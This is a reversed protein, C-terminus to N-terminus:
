EGVNPYGIIGVTINKKMNLSRSYNKLLQLLNSAGIALSRNMSSTHDLKINNVQSLKSSHQTSSKFAIVPFERSLYKIWINMNELPILDIKNLILILRKPSKQDSQVKSLILQEMERCRCGLPDRADLVQLIIDSQEIVNNLEKYYYRKSALSLDVSAQVESPDVNPSNNPHNHTTNNNIRKKIIAEHRAAARNQKIEERKARNDLRDKIATLDPIEPVKNRSLKPNHPNDVALRQLRKRQLKSDYLQTSRSSSKKQKYM